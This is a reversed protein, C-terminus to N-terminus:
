SDGTVLSLQLVQGNLKLQGNRIGHDIDRDRVTGFKIYSPDEPTRFRLKTSSDFIDTMQQVIEPTGFRSGSLKETLYLGNPNYLDLLFM